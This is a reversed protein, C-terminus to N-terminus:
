GCERMGVCFRVLCRAVRRRKEGGRCCHWRSRLAERHQETSKQRCARSKEDSTDFAPVRNHTMTSVGVLDSTGDLARRYHMKHLTLRLDLVGDRIRRM